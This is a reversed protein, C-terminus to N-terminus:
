LSRLDRFLSLYRRAVAPAAFRECVSRRLAARDPATDISRALGAAIDSADLWRAIYGTRPPDIIDSQGGRGFSVPWAGAAQGEILTGPLTEYLSTSLVVRAHAYLSRLRAPDAVTGLHVFPVALGDLATADRLAGFFVPIFRGAYGADALRNLADVAVPLGKVPDDLRAAGMVIIHRDDDPLGLEARSLAPTLSFDDVPFANPIVEVRADRLLGSERCRAALWTSVAVFTIGSRAYCAAKREFRRRSLDISRPSREVLPCRGCAERFRTCDGAHHCLGTACWMDHMTWVVPKGLAAIREVGRLSLMGQNVWNLCVVDAERVWPHRHLPLGARAADLKFLNRRHLGNDIWTMGEEAMFAAKAVLQPAAEAVFESAPGERRVVLMRADVGERRLADALRATVVSAGGRT